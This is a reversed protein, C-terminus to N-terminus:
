NLTGSLLIALCVIKCLVTYIYQRTLSLNVFSTCTILRTNQLFSKEIIQPKNMRNDLPHLVLLHGITGPMM